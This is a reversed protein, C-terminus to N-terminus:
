AVAAAAVLLETLPGPDTIMPEHCADLRRHHFRADRSARARQRDLDVEPLRSPNCEIVTGPHTWVRGAATIRDDTLGGLERGLYPHVM